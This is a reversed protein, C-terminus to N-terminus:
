EREGRETPRLDGVGRWVLETSCVGASASAPVLCGCGRSSGHGWWTGRLWFAAWPSLQCGGLAQSAAGMGSDRRLRASPSCWSM